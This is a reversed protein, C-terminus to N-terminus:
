AIRRPGPRAERRAKRAAKQRKEESRWRLGGEDRIRRGKLFDDAGDHYGWNFRIRPTTDTSSSAM